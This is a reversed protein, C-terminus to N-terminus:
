AAATEKPGDRSGNAWDSGKQEELKGGNGGADIRAPESQQKSYYDSKSQTRTQHHAVENGLRDVLKAGGRLGDADALEVHFHRHSARVFEAGM